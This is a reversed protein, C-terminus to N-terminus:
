ITIIFDDPLRRVKKISAYRDSEARYGIPIVLLPTLNLDDLKLIEAYGAPNFGEMPCADVNLLACSTLLNGLAIYVQRNMWDNQQAETKGFISKSIMERYGVLQDLTISRTAAINEMYQEIHSKKIVKERCLVLLHSADIVQRQNNSVPLLKNRLLVDEVVVVVKMLQMGYSTPTLRTAELLTNVTETPLKKNPDFQKTAYRNNLAEILKKEEMEINKRWTSSM